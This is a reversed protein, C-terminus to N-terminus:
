CWMKGNDECTIVFVSSPARRCVEERLDFEESNVIRSPIRVDKSRRKNCFMTAIIDGNRSVESVIFKQEGDSDTFWEPDYKETVIVSGNCYTWRYWDEDFVKLIKWKVSICVAKKDIDPILSLSQELNRNLWASLCSTIIKTNNSLPNTKICFDGCGFVTIKMEGLNFDNRIYDGSEEGIILRKLQETGSEIVDTLSNIKSSRIMLVYQHDSMKHEEDFIFVPDKMPIENAAYKLPYFVNSFQGTVVHTKGATIDSRYVSLSIYPDLENQYILKVRDGKPHNPDFQIYEGPLDDVLYIGQRNCHLTMFPYGTSYGYSAYINDTNEILNM